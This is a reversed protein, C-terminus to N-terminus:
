EASEGTDGESNTWHATMVGKNVLRRFSEAYFTVVTRAFDPDCCGAAVDMAVAAALPVPLVM